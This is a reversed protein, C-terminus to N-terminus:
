KLFSQAMGMLGGAHGGGGGGLMNMAQSMFGGGGGGANGNQGGSMAQKAFNMLASGFQGRKESGMACAAVGLVAAAAVCAGPHDQIVQLVKGFDFDPNMQMQNMTGDNVAQLSEEDARFMYPLDLITGSHCCDLVATLQVGDNLPGVLCKFVEDDRLLGASELDVPCLAEDKGDAEDGDDDRVSAGHGSYHFFLSDGPGADEVLWQFGAIIGAKDPNEHEGDDMMIKMDDESYGQKVLYRRMTEVDNHCGQLENQTGVYNIGVLLAKCKGEGQPNKPSYQSNLDIQRSSSLQPIQEYQGKLIAQMRQLLEVWTYDDREDLAKILSSTCAGGAGGPGADSPLGFSSTNYVDASTQSDKCGSFMIVSAPIVQAARSSFSEADGPNGRGQSVKGYGAIYRAHRDFARQHVQAASDDGQAEAAALKAGAWFLDQTRKWLTVSVEDPHPEIAHNFEDQRDELGDMGFVECLTVAASSVAMDHIQQCPDEGLVQKEVLEAQLEEAKELRADAEDGDVEAQAAAWLHVQYGIEKVQAAFDAPYSEM